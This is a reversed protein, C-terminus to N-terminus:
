IRLRPPWIAPRARVSIPPRDPSCWTTSAPAAAASRPKPLRCWRSARFPRCCRARSPACARGTRWIVPTTTSWAPTSRTGRRGRRASSSRAGGVRRAGQRQVGHARAAWAPDDAFLEGYEKMASGCGAANVVIRDVGVREFVEINHRALARAQDIHGAHLACRAAAGRRRRAGDGPVRRGRARPRDGRERPRVRAAARLRDAPGGEPAGGQRPRTAGADSAFLGSLTVPPAVSLSARLRALLGSAPDAPRMPAWCARLLGGMLALPLLALRMRRSVAGAVMLARPVLSRRCAAPVAARDARADERHAARVARRVSLGDRVGPLRSLQRLAPRVVADARARGEVGAKMLYIRGRPSDMEEGWLLYTPCTPLCFGCHVCTDILATPPADPVAADSDGIRVEANM